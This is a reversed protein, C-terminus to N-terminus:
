ADLRLAKAATSVKMALRLDGERVPKFGYRSYYPILGPHMVDVVIVRGGGVRSLKVITELADLLLHPGMQGGHLSKDLALRGLLWGPVQEPSGRGVSGPLANRVVLTPAIAYYGLVEPSTSATLVYVASVRAADVGPATRTLWENLSPEGCDFAGLQHSPALRSVQYTPRQSM